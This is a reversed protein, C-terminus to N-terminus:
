NKYRSLKAPSGIYIGNEEECNKVVTANSGIISDNAISVNGIVNVGAGLEVNDGIVPCAMDLGNNGICNCGHLQFNIGIESEGNIVVYGLHHILFGRGICNEGIAFGLKTGLRNKKVRAIVFLFQNIIKGSNKYYECCRLLRIYKWIVWNENYTLIDYWKLHYLNKEYLLWDKLERKTRIISHM